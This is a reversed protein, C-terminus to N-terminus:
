WRRFSRRRSGRHQALGLLLYSVRGDNRYEAVPVELRQLIDNNGLLGEDLLIAISCLSPM